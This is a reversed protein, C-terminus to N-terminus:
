FDSFIAGIGPATYGITGRIGVSSSQNQNAHVEMNLFKTLGFDAVKATMDEDLLVNSPKLDCHVIPKYHEGHLYNLAFAIDMAINVRHLLSFRRSNGVHPLNHLWDDLSGNPMFEYVLAKFDNGQFDVSSCATVVKVLNRHRISRLARCERMFSKTAKQNQLNFVKVAVITTSSGEQPPGIDLMGKYVSGFGGVGILNETSFENTARRLEHYSVKKFKAGRLLLESSQFQKRKRFWYFLTISVIVIALCTCLIAFIWKRRMLLSVKKKKSDNITCKHLKLEAVGGCLKKNGAVSVATLNAFIGNTPVQGEFHNFSLNLKKVPSTEFFKPIEGSLNNRSLDITQIGRLFRISSPISGEFLNGQMYLEELMTCYGISDSIEGSLKNESVDLEMLDKLNSIESPIPGILHNQALNLSISLHTIDFIQKPITGSLNNNFLDLVLLSQCQGLSPPITGELYNNKLRLEVLSSLNGLSYPIKGSLKNNFLAFWQLNSIKGLEKPIPGTFYNNEMGLLYLSVLNGIGSPIRGYLQNSNMILKELQTSFNAISDPLVGQFRNVSFTLEQLQSCNALSNLFTMEEAEGSGFNNVGLNLYLLNKMGGFDITVKGSFSNNYVELIELKSANSLSSPLTGHFFNSPLQLTTLHPFVLGLNPPLRGYLRNQSLAFISISSLNFLSEPITGSLDNGAISLRNMNKLRGLSDPIIGGLPNYSISLAELSSLNGLFHPIGGTLGNFHLGLANLNKLSELEMPIKGVFKNRGLNLYTLRFLRGIERPIEGQISNNLLNLERLFSLNGIYPSLSGVLGRSSLNLSVVRRHKRGCTVGAWNCLHLGSNNTWQNMVGQPDNSINSKFALLSLLDRDNGATTNFGVTTVTVTTNTASSITLLLTICFLSTSLHLHVLCFNAM